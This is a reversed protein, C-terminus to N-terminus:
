AIEAIEANAEDHRFLGRVTGVFRPRKPLNQATQEVHTRAAESLARDTSVLDRHNELLRHGREIWHEREAEPIQVFKLM